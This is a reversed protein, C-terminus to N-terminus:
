PEPALTSTGANSWNKAVGISYNSGAGVDLSGAQITLNGGVQIATGLTASGSSKNITLNNFAHSADTGGASIMQAGTGNIVVTGTGATFTAGTAVNWVGGVSIQNSGPSLSGGAVILNENVVLDAGLTMANSDIRLRYYDPGGYTQIPGDRSRYVTTGKATDSLSVTDSGQRYLTGANSLTGTITLNYGGTDLSANTQITLDTVATSASLFPYNGSAVWPITVSDAAGPTGNPSWNTATGWPTTGGTWTYSISSFTWNTNGGGDM